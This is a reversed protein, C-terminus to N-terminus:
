RFCSESLRSKEAAGPRFGPLLMPVRDKYALYTEGHEAILDREELGTAFVIYITMALSFIMHGVTMTSAAWIAILFGLNIPHRVHKYLGTASMPLSTYRKGRSALLVQRLGFLDFHNILFTSLFAIGWGLWFAAGFMLQGIASQFSWLVEPIPRWFYFMLAFLTSSLLVYTSRELQPM